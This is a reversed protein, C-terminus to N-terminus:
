NVVSHWETVNVYHYNVNFSNASVNDEASYYYFSSGIKVTVTCGKGRKQAFLANLLLISFLARTSSLLFAKFKIVLIACYCIDLRWLLIVEILQYRFGNDM